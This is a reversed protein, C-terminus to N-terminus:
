LKFSQLLALATFYDVTTSKPSVLHQTTLRMLLSVVIIPIAVPPKNTNVFIAGLLKAFM